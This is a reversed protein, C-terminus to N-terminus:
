AAPAFSRRPLSSIAASMAGYRDSRSNYKVCRTCLLPPAFLLDSRENCRLLRQSFQIERLRNFM